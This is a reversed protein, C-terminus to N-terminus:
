TWRFARAVADFDAFLFFCRQYQLRSPGHLGSRGDFRTIGRVQLGGFREWFLLQKPDKTLTYNERRARANPLIFATCHHINEECESMLFPLPNVLAFWREVIALHM